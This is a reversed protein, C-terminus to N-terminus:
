GYRDSADDFIVIGFVNKMRRSGASVPTSTQMLNSIYASNSQSLEAMELGEPSSM